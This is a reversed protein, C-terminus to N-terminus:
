LLPSVLGREQERGKIWVEKGTCVCLGRCIVAKAPLSIIEVQFDNFQHPQVLGEFDGLGVVSGELEHAEIEKKGCNFTDLEEKRSIDRDETPSPTM